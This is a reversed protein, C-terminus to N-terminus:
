LFLRLLRDIVDGATELISGLAHVIEDIVDGGILSKEKKTLWLVKQQLALAVFRDRDSTEVLRAQWFPSFVNPKEKKKDKRAFYSLAAPRAFYLEAKAIAGLRDVGTSEGYDTLDFHGQFQPGSKDIDDLKRTVGVLFYPSQFPLTSDGAERKDLHAMDRYSQLGKYPNDAVLNEEMEKTVGPWALVHAPSIAGGYPPLKRKGYPLLVNEPLLMKKVEKPAQFAGAGFPAEAPFPWWKGFVKIKSGIVSSDAASWLFSDRIHRLESAGESEAGMEWDAGFKVKVGFVNVKVSVDIGLGLRWDRNTSKNPDGSSFPDRADRITAAMRAM